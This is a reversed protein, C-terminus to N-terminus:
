QSPYNGCFERVREGDGRASDLDNKAATIQRDIEPNELAPVQLLKDLLTQQAAKSATPLTLSLQFIKDLFLYGLPRGPQGIADRFDKYAGEYSTRLWAGDAAVLFM